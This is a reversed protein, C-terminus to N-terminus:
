KEYLHVAKDASVRENWVMRMIELEETYDLNEEKEDYKLEELVEIAFADEGFVNSRKKRLNEKEAKKLM